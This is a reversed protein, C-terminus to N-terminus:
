IAKMARELAKFDIKSVIDQYHRLEDIVQRFEIADSLMLGRDPIADLAHRLQSYFGIFKQYEPKTKDKPQTTKTMTYCTPDTKIQFEGITLIM